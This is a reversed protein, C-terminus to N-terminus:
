SDNEGNKGEEAQRGSLDYYEGRIPLSQGIGDPLPPMDWIARIEDRTMLGRDAMQASVSLKDANTMYQLASSNMVVRTGLQREKASYLMRTLVESIQIAFPQIKGEYFASWDDGTASNQMIKENVGYYNSVSNQAFKIQETDVVYPKAQIQQINDATNPFYLVSGQSGPGFNLEDFERADKKLDEPLTRHTLRAMFRYTASSKVAEGIAQDQINILEMTPTLAANSEGFFDQEYQRTVLHGIYEAELAARQGNAFEFAYYLRGGVEKIEAKRPFLTYVGTVDGYTDFCPAIYANNQLELITATRYLFQGWTQWQNPGLELKTRLTPKATGIIQVSLKSAHRAIADVAARVLESDYLQGGWAYFAPSYATLTRFASSESINKPETKAGFIKQLLGM